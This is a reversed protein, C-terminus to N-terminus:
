SETVEGNQNLEEKVLDKLSDLDIWGESTLVWHYWWKDDNGSDKYLAHCFVKAAEWYAVIRAIPWGDKQIVLKHEDPQPGVRYLRGDYQVVIEDQSDRIIFQRLGEVSYGFGHTYPIFIAKNEDAFIVHISNNIAKAEIPEVKVKQLSAM